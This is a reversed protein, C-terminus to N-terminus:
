ISKVLKKGEDAHVSIKISLTKQVRFTKVFTEKKFLFRRNLERIGRKKVMRTRDPPGSPAAAASPEKKRKWNKKPFGKTMAALFSPLIHLCPFSFAPHQMKKALRQQAQTHHAHQPPQNQWQKAANSDPIRSFFGREGM